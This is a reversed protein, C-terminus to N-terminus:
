YEESYLIPRTKAEQLNGKTLVFSSWLHEKFRRMGVQKLMAEYSAVTQLAKDLTIEGRNYQVEVQSLRRRMRLTTSKRFNTYDDHIVCGVFEVGCRAPRLSTKRNFQLKLRENLFEELQKRQEKLRDKNNDIIVIDDMYRAYRKIRLERKAYQDLPDLYLNGLTHSLGGGIPIGVDYLETPDQRDDSLRLGFPVGTGDIYYELLDITQRDTIKQRLLTLLVKHDIRYFFKAVDFKYAYWNGPNVRTNRMWGEVRRMTSLQGRGPICAYTDSIFGKVLRPNIANYLARQIIKNPYDIYIVKRVKPVYVYFSKYQVKPIRSSRLESSIHLINDELDQEFILVDRKEGKGKSVDKEAQLLAQFSTFEDFINKIPMALIKM